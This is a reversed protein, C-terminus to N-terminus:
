RATHGHLNLVRNALRRDQYKDILSLAADRTESIGFVMDITATEEPELIIQYRIAVIPDLVSGQSGSLPTFNNMVQPAAITNRRGIFKMRDTEYSVNETNVGRVVMMHFMLPTKENISRPRRTCLIAHKTVSLRLRFLYIVSHRIRITLIQHLLCWKQMVQLRDKKSRSRNRLHIRRLEIDDEPSVVIETHM